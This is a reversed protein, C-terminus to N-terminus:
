RHCRSMTLTWSGSKRFEEVRSHSWFSPLLRFRLVYSRVLMVAAWSGVGGCGVIVVSKGRIKRMGDDGFFAYNRALQERILEEDYPLGSIVSSATLSDTPPGQDDSNKTNLTGFNSGHSTISRLVEENLEKRRSRRTYSNYATVAGFTACSAAIATAILQSKHSTLYSSM